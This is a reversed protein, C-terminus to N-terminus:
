LAQVPGTAVAPPTIGHRRIYLPALTRGWAKINGRYAVRWRGCCPCLAVWMGRPDAATKHTV